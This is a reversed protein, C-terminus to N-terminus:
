RFTSMSMTSEAGTELFYAAKVPMLASRNSIVKRRKEAQSKASSVVTTNSSFQKDPQFHVQVTHWTPDGFWWFKLQATKPSSIKFVSWSMQPDVSAQHDSPRHLRAMMPFRVGKRRLFSMTRAVRWGNVSNINQCQEFSSIGLSSKCPLCKFSKPRHRLVVPESTGKCCSDSSVVCM